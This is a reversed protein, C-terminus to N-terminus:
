RRGLTTSPSTPWQLVMAELALRPRVNAELDAICTQVARVAGHLAALDWGRALETLQEAIGRYTLYHPLAAHLLLADRWVGLLADLDAFVPERRKTFGDGLRVAAVLRDYPSGAIWALARELAARREGLLRPDAVARRAWGPRGGALGAVEAAVAADVGAAVLSVEVVDLPVPRLEIPRCRSRITPLLLDGDNALLLLVVFSAPEELTKLLAEQATEQLTEADNVIVVRWRAETPRLTTAARILRATDITMTLNKGGSKESAAAQSALGFTQVDPHVGRGVKRCGLCVGCPVGRDSRSDDGCCLTRAFALALAAKGVGDPGSVLFAHGVRDTDVARRLDAVAGDHGWVPWGNPSV